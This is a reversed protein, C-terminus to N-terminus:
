LIIAHLVEGHRRDRRDFPLASLYGTNTGLAGPLLDSVSGSEAYVTNAWAGSDEVAEYDLFGTINFVYRVRAPIHTRWTWNVFDSGDRVLIGSLKFPHPRVWGELYELLPIEGANGTDEFDVGVYKVLYADDPNAQQQGVQWTRQKRRGAVLTPFDIVDFDPGIQIKTEDFERLHVTLRQADGSATKTLKASIALVDENTVAFYRIRSRLVTGTTGGPEFFTEPDAADKEALLWADSLVGPYFYGWGLEGEWPNFFGGRSAVRLTDLTGDDTVISDSAEEVGNVYIRRETASVQVLHLRAAVANAAAVGSSLDGDTVSEITYIGSTERIRIRGTGSGTLELAVKSAAVTRRVSIGITFTASNAFSPSTYADNGQVAAGAKLLLPYPTATGHGGIGSKTYVGSATAIDSLASGDFVFYSRFDTLNIPSPAGVGNTDISFTTPTAAAVNLRFLLIGKATSKNFAIALHPLATGSSNRVRISDGLSDVDTWFSAPVGSHELDFPMTFGVLDATVKGAPITVSFEAM